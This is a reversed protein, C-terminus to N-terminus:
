LIARCEPCTYNDKLWHSLAVSTMIHGCSTVSGNELTIPEMAIPCEKHAMVADRLLIDQVHKPLPNAKQKPTEKAFLSDGMMNGWTEQVLASYQSPQKHKRQNRQNEQNDQVGQRQSFLLEDFEHIIEEPVSQFVYEMSIVCPDILNMKHRRLPWRDTIIYEEGNPLIRHSYTIYADESSSPTTLAYVHLRGKHFDEMILNSSNWTRTTKDWELFVVGDELKYSMFYEQTM